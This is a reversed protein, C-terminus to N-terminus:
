HSFRGRTGKVPELRDVEVRPPWWHVSHWDLCNGGPQGFRQLRGSLRRKAGTGPPRSAAGRHQRGLVGKSTGDRGWAARRKEASHALQATGRLPM